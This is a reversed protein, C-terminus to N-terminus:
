PHAGVWPTTARFAPDCLSTMAPSDTWHQEAFEDPDVDEPHAYTGCARCYLMKIQVTEIHTM